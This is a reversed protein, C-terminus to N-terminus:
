AILRRIRLERGPTWRRGCAVTQSSPAALTRALEGLPHIYAAPTQSGSQSAFWLWANRTALLANNLRVAGGSRRRRGPRYPETRGAHSGVTTLKSANVPAAPPRECAKSDDAQHAAQSGQRNDPGVLRRATERFTQRGHEFDGDLNPNIPPDIATGIGPIERLAKM